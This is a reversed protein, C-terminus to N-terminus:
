LISAPDIRFVPKKLSSAYGACRGTGSNSGNWVAIVMDAHEVMFKDRDFMKWGAYPGDNVMVTEDARSLIARYEAVSDSLWKSEQGPFPIAAHLRIPLGQNKLDIVARAFVTDVGLAMGTWADRCGSALLISKLKDQLALWKKTNINYGWGMTKPRHGTVCISNAKIPAQITNVTIQNAM